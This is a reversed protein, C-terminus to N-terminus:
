RTQIIKKKKGKQNRQKQTEQWRQKQNLWSRRTGGPGPPALAFFIARHANDNLFHLPVGLCSLRRCFFSVSHLHRAAPFQFSILILSPHILHKTGECTVWITELLAALGSLWWRGGGGGGGGKQLQESGEWKGGEM